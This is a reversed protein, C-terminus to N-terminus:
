NWLNASRKTLERVSGQYQNYLDQTPSGSLTVNHEKSVPEWYYSPMSDIQCEFRIRSNDVFFSYAKLQKKFGDTEQPTKDIILKCYKPYILPQKGKLVFKEGKIITSDLIVEPYYGLDALRVVVGDAAGPMHGEITYTKVQNCAVGCFLIGLLLLLKMTM